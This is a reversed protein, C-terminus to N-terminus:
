APIGRDPRRVMRPPRISALLVCVIVHLAGAYNGTVERMIAFIARRTIVSSIGVMRAAAVAKDQDAGSFGSRGAFHSIHGRQHELISYAVTGVMAMAQARGGPHIWRDQAASNGEVEADVRTPGAYVFCRDHRYHLLGPWSLRLHELRRGILDAQDGGPGHDVSSRWIPRGCNRHDSTSRDPFWSLSPCSKNEIRYHNAWAINTQSRQQSRLKAPCSIPPAVDPAFPQPALSLIVRLVSGHGARGPQTDEIAASANPQVRARCCTCRAKGAAAARGIM